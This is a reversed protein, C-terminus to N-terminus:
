IKTLQTSKRSLYGIRDSWISTVKPGRVHFDFVVTLAFTPQPNGARQSNFGRILNYKVDHFIFDFNFLWRTTNTDDIGDWEMPKNKTCNKIFLVVSGSVRSSSSSLRFFNWKPRWGVIAFSSSNIKFITKFLQTYSYYNM